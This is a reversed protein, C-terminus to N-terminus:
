RSIVRGSRRRLGRAPARMRGAPQPRLRSSERGRGAGGAPLVGRRGRPLRAAASTAQASGAPYRAGPVGGRGALRAPWRPLPPPRVTGPRLDHRLAPQRGPLTRSRGVVGCGWGAGCVGQRSIRGAGARLLRGPRGRQRGAHGAPWDPFCRDAGAGPQGEWSGAPLRIRRCSAVELLALQSQVPDVQVPNGEALLKADPMLRVMVWRGPRSGPLAGRGNGAPLPWALQVGAWM